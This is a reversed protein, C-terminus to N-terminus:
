SHIRHPPQAAKAPSWRKVQQLYLIVGLSGTILEALPFALWTYRLGIRSMLYFIPILCFLQRTVSLLTSRGGAGIAQFFVPTMLSLTAPLFSTGIIRFASSGESLVIPDNSFLGLVTKPILEFCAVGVLMFAASIVISCNMVKKCRDFSKKAYSYSLLPVICTQLGTLPIFFFSQVKYYLGLITVAQDSFGALIVNLVIIYVTYLMQMLISPYGMLYIDRIYRWMEALRPPRRFGKATIAAAVFQGGVTAWAAGAVGMEPFPGIGFILLPDFIINTVAGAIQALMPLRMNGGAQHVKTWCSELFVGLSGICVIKGYIVGHEVALPSGASTRVYPEMFIASATAFIAWSLIALTMGTGAAKDAMDKENHAYRRSMITNVGVGTGVAIATVILQVPYIVSLATLGEQSYRGVFFSDVTNYMAQILLALMVPPAIKLLVSWVSGSEFLQGQSSNRDM